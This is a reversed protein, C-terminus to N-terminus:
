NFTSELDIEAELGDGNIGGMELSTVDVRM